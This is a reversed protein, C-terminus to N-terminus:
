STFATGYLQMQFLRKPAPEKFKHAHYSPKPNKADMINRSSIKSSMCFIKLQTSRRIQLFYKLLM